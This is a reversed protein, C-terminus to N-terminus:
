QIMASAAHCRIPSTEREYVAASLEVRTLAYRAKSRAVPTKPNLSRAAMVHILLRSAHAPASPLSILRPLTNLCRTSAAFVASTTAAAIVGSRPRQTLPPPPPAPPAIGDSAPHAPYHLRSQAADKESVEGGGGGQKEERMCIVSSHQATRQRAIAAAPSVSSNTVPAGSNRRRIAPQALRASSM